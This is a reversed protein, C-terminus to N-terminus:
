ELACYEPERLRELLAPHWYCATLERALAIEEESNVIKDSHCAGCLEELWTM